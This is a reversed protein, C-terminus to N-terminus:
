KSNNKTAQKLLGKIQKLVFKGDYSEGSQFVTKATTYVDGAVGNVATKIQKAVAASDENTAGGGGGVGGGAEVLRRCKEELDQVKTEWKFKEENVAKEVNELAADSAAKQVALQAKLESLEAVHRASSEARDKSETEINAAADKATSLELTLREVSATAEAARVDAAELRSALDTLSTMTQVERAKTENLTAEMLACSKQVQNLENTKMELEHKSGMDNKAVDLQRQLNSVMEQHRLSDEKARSTSEMMESKKERLEMAEDIYKQNKELM